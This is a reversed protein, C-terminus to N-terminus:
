GRGNRKEQLAARVADAIKQRNNASDRLPRSVEIQMGIKRIGRNCLNETHTGAMRRSGYGDAIRQLHLQRRTKGILDTDLGGVYVIPEIDTCGHVTVVAASTRVLALARPHDFRHSTIHLDRNGSEKLGNFCFLNYDNGAILGAIETTHPEIRGGHPALITTDSNRNCAIVEFETECAALDNFNQYRDM